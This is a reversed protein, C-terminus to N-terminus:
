KTNLNITALSSEMKNRYYVQLDAQKLSKSVVFSVKNTVSAGDKPNSAFYVDDKPADKDGNTQILRFELNNLLCKGSSSNLCNLKLDVTLIKSDADNPVVKISIVDAKLNGYYKDSIPVSPTTAFWTLDSNVVSPTIGDTTPLPLPAVETTTPKKINNGLMVIGVVIAVGVAALIGFIALPNGLLGKPKEDDSFPKEPGDDGINDLVAADDCVSLLTFNIRNLETSADQLGLQMKKQLDKYQGELLFTQNLLETNKDTLIKQLLDIAQQTKGESILTKVKELRMQTITFPSHHVTFKPYTSYTAFFRLHIPYISKKLDM